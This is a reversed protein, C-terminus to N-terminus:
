SITVTMYLKAMANVITIADYVVVSKKTDGQEVTVDAESFNEIARIDQLQKHHKIIDNWLSVRGAADNPVSGLYKSAFLVAIDNGIQDVVRVTQNDRFIEGRDESLSVLSNIDMLVRLESGVRHLAFEGSRVADELEKQKYDAFVMCEGDYRRNLASRNVATGACIGCVWAALASELGDSCPNKVNVVGEYDAAFNYLVVQFKKGVEDRLRKCFAAYIKKIDNDVALCCVANFSYNELKDLFKQHAEITVEGDKGGSLPLASVAQLVADRKFKVFNNDSLGSMDAANQEDVKAGGVLTSVVFGGDGESVSISIDNGRSGARRAVAIECEAKVAGNGDLPYVLVSTANLFIERLPLLRDDSYGCGLLKLSDKQFDGNSIELIEDSFDWGLALGVAAVGRDSLTASANAASVFNIYAGPLIKNQVLFTGGGLAM